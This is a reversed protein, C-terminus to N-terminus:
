LVRKLKLHKLRECDWFLEDQCHSFVGENGSISCLVSDSDVLKPKEGAECNPCPKIVVAGVQRLNENLYEVRIFSIALEYKKDNLLDALTKQKELETLEM